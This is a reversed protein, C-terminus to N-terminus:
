YLVHPCVTTSSQLTVNEVTYWTVYQDTQEATYKLDRLFRRSKASTAHIDSLNLKELQACLNKIINMSSSARRNLHISVSTM